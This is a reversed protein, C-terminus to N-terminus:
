HAIIPLNQVSVGPASIERGHRLFQPLFSKIKLQIPAQEFGSDTPWLKLPVDAPNMEFPIQYRIETSSVLLPQAPTGALRVEMTGFSDSTGAQGTRDDDALGSGRIWNLSGPLPAGIIETIVRTRGMLYRIAGPAVDLRM